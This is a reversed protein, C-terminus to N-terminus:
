SIGAACGASNPQWDWTMSLASSLDHNGAFERARGAVAVDVAAAVVFRRSVQDVANDTRSQCISV